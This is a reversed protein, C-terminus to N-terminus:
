EALNFSRASLSHQLLKCMIVKGSPDSPLSGSHKISVQCLNAIGASVKKARKAILLGCQTGDRGNGDPAGGFGIRIWSRFKLSLSCIGHSAQVKHPRVYFLLFIEMKGSIEAAM